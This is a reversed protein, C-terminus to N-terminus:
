IKNLMFELICFKLFLIECLGVNENFKKIKIKKIKKNKKYQAVWISNAIEPTIQIRRM